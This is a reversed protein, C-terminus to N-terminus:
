QKGPFSHSRSGRPSEKQSYWAEILFAGIIILVLAALGLRIVNGKTYDGSTTSPSVSPNDGLTTATVWIELSDSPHSAWFPSSKQYYVCSYNGTDKVTVNQLSFGAMNGLPRWDRIPESMGEKLLSFRVYDVVNYPKQCRLPVKKGATVNRSPYAQLSPKPFGGTVLLLLVDSPQSTTYPSLITYYECTYEGANGQHLDTLLFEALNETLNCPELSWMTIRGKKLAFNVNRTPSWCRLIVNSKLPVVSSPWASLSPKPLPGDGTMDRQSLCLGFCLLFLFQSIM